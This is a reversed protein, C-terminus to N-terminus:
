TNRRSNQDLMYMQRMFELQQARLDLLKESLFRNDPHETLADM